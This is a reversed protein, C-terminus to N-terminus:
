LAGASAFVGHDSAAFTEVPLLACNQDASLVLYTYSSGGYLCGLGVEMINTSNRLILCDVELASARTLNNCFIYWVFYQVGRVEGTSCNM